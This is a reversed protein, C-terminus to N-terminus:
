TGGGVQLSFKEKIPPKGPITVQVTVDWTGSMGLLAKGEYFGGKYTAQAKSDTMGPMPMTYIFIVQANTIAKGTKDTVKVRLVNEGAKPKEPVTTLTLSVNGSQRTENAPGTAVPANMGPMGKMDRNAGERGPPASVGGKGMDMDDMKAEYAGRMQWDAMGVRGMMEQMGGSSALKSEADLLFNASTVVRDGEKIGELVEVLDQSRRGLKVPHPEYVGQGRDLFVLRRLGTDLVAEKPVVLAKASDTHVIVTGYMGPKLKLGPNPLEMRVRMTRAAETVSPLIYTVKARFTEGPYSAFEVSAPQNLKVAAVESEYIDASIWVTSLDALEYLPTGPEVYKGPVAERKLVTGSAPAYVTMVPEAKGRKGLAAIQSDTLDWLRLRERASAVLSSANGKADDLPSDALQAKMKLALLYEDQTALLDPAYLTFLPQGKRVERGVSDVFVQRVWGSVKLTVQTFGREDYGVTGVTRIEQMLPVIVAPTSRVGVVQRMVAPIAVAGPSPPTIGKMGQMDKMDMEKVSDKEGERVPPLSTAGKGSTMGSMDGMMMHAAFYGGVLGALVGGVAVGVPISKWRSDITM